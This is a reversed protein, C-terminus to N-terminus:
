LLVVKKNFSTAPEKVGGGDLACGSTRELPTTVRSGM